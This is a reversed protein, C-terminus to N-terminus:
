ITNEKAHFKKAQELVYKQWVPQVANKREIIHSIENETLEHECYSVRDIITDKLGGEGPPCGEIFLGRNRWKRTCNGHLILREKPINEPISNKRGIIIVADANKDYEGRAKLTEM